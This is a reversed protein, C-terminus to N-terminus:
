KKFLYISNLWLLLFNGKRLIMQATKFLSPEHFLTALLLGEGSGEGFLFGLPLFKFNWHWGSLALGDGWGRTVAHM